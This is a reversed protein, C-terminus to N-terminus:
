PPSLAAKCFACPGRVARIFAKYSHPRWLQVCVKYFPGHFSDQPLAKESLALTFESVKGAHFGTGSFAEVVYTGTENCRQAERRKQAEQTPLVRFDVWSRHTEKRVDTTLPSASHSTM